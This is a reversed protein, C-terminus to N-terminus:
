QSVSAYGLGNPGVHTGISTTANIVMPPNLPQSKIQSLIKRADDEANSHLIAFYELKGEHNILDLLQQIGKKRSRIKFLNIVKAEKVEVFQKFRLM